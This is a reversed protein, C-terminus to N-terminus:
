KHWTATANQIERPRLAIGCVGPQMVPDLTREAPEAHGVDDRDMGDIFLDAAVDVREIGHEHAAVIDAAADARSVSEARHDGSQIFGVGTPPPLAADHQSRVDPRACRSRFSDSTLSWVTQDTAAGRDTDRRQLPRRRIM